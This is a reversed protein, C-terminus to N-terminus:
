FHIHTIRQKPKEPKVREYFQLEGGSLKYYMGEKRAIDFLADLDAKDASLVEVLGENSYTYHLDTGKLYKILEEM